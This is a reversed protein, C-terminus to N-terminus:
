NGVEELFIGRPFHPIGCHLARLPCVKSTTGQVDSKDVGNPWTGHLRSLIGVRRRTNNDILRHNFSEGRGRDRFCWLTRPKVGPIAAHIDAVAVVYSMEEFITLVESFIAKPCKKRAMCLPMIKWVQINVNATREIGLPFGSQGFECCLTEHMNKGAYIGFGFFVRAGLM